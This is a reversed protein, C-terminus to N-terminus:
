ADKETRYPFVDYMERLNYFETASLGSFDLRVERLKVWKSGGLEMAQLEVLYRAKQFQFDDVLQQFVFNGKLVDDPKIVAPVAYYDRKTKPGLVYQVLRDDVAEFRLAPLAPSGVPILRLDELVLPRAGSNSITLPLTVIVLNKSASPEQTGRGAGFYRIEGVILKGRRWNM